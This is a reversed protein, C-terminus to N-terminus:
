IQSKAALCAVYSKLNGAGIRRRYERSAERANETAIGDGMTDDPTDYEESLMLAFDARVLKREASSLASWEHGFRQAFLIAYRWRVITQDDDQNLSSM